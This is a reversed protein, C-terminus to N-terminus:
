LPQWCSMGVKPEEAEEGRILMVLTESNERDQGLSVLACTISLKVYLLSYLLEYKEL